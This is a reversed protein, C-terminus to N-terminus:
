NVVFAAINTIFVTSANLSTNMDIKIGFTESSKGGRKAGLKREMGVTSNYIAIMM